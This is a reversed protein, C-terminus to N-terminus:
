FQIVMGEMTLGPGFAMMVGYEGAAPRRSRVVEDLVLLVTASSCNGNEALMRFSPAVAEDDLGLRVAILEVIKPGGPHIVWHAIDDGSLQLPQLLREMFGEIEEALLFPVYPSLTMAFGDSAVTWTMMEQSGYLHETHSRLLRIGSGPPQMRIIVSASADAFLTHIVAQERSLEPRIHLSTLETCNVLVDEHPRAVAADMAVKLGNFAAFCGMHGIFTRRLQSRLGFSHALLCEPTPGTYGTCSVMVFSGIQSKSRDEIVQSLSDSAIRLVNDQFWQIREVTSPNGKAFVERPDWTLNKFRVGSNRFIEDARPIDEYWAKFLGEYLDEQSIRNEPFAKGVDMITPALEKSSAPDMYM